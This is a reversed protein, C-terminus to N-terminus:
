DIGLRECIQDLYVRKVKSGGTLPVIITREGPKTFSVHSGSQRAKTWGEMELLREVDRFSAQPPRAKIRAVLKEDRSVDIDM